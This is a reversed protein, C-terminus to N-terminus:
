SHRPITVGWHNLGAMRNASGSTMSIARYLRTESGAGPTMEADDIIVEPLRAASSIAFVRRYSLASGYSLETRRTWLVIVRLCESCGAVGLCNPTPRYESAVLVNQWSAITAVLAVTVPTLTQM